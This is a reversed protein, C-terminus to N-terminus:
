KVLIVSEDIDVFVSQEFCASLSGGETKLAWGQTDAHAVYADQVSYIVEIAYATGVKFKATHSTIESKSGPIYPPEHLETGVAHGTLERMVSYGATHIGTDIIETVASIRVGNKVAAVAKDLTRRGVDLFKSIEKNPVASIVYTTGWDIHYNQYFVGIDLKLIDGDKLSYDNPIGHVVVENVSLCTAWHYGPVKNFSVQGGNRIILETAKQDIEATTIGVKLFSQLSDVVQKLIYGGHVMAAKKAAIDVANRM